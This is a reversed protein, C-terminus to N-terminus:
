PPGKSYFLFNSQATYKKQYQSIEIEDTILHLKGSVFYWINQPLSYGLLELYHTWELSVGLCSSKYQM